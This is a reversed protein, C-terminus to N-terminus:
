RRCTNGWIGLGQARAAAQLELFYHGYHPDLFVGTDARALGHLLLQEQLLVLSGGSPVFVYARYRQYRDRPPNAFVVVVEPFALSEVLEKAEAFCRAGREPADVGALRLSTALGAVRLTDGDVVRQTRWWASQAEAPALGFLLILLASLSLSWLRKM